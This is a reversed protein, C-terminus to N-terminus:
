GQKSYEQELREAREFTRTIAPAAAPPPPTPTPWLPSYRQDPPLGAASMAQFLPMGGVAMSSTMSANLQPHMMPNSSQSSLLTQLMPLENAKSAMDLMRSTSVQRDEVSWQRRLAEKQFARDEDNIHHIRSRAAQQLERQDIHIGNLEFNHRANALTQEKKLDNIAAQKQAAILQLELFKIKQQQITVQLETKNLEQSMEAVVPSMRQVVGTGPSRYRNSVGEESTSSMSLSSAAVRKRSPATTEEADPVAQQVNRKNSTSTPASKNAKLQTQLKSVLKELVQIKNTKTTIATKADRLEANEKLQVSRPPPREIAPARADALIDRPGHKITWMKWSNALQQTTAREVTMDGPRHTDLQVLRSEDYIHRNMDWYKLRARSLKDHDVPVEPM